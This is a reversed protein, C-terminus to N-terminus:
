KTERKLSLPVVGDTYVARGTMKSEETFALKVAVSQGEVYVIFSITDKAFKVLDGPYKNETGSFAMTASLKNDTKSLDIIGNNHGQPAYPAEFLWKGLPDKKFTSGQGNIISLGTFLLITLLLTQKM